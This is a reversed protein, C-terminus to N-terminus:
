RAGSVRVEGGATPVGREQDDAATQPYPMRGSNVIYVGLCVGAVGALQSAGMYEGLLLWGYLVAFVPSLFTLAAVRTASNRQILWAYAVFGFAASVIGLYLISVVARGSFVFVADAEWMWSSLGLLPWSMWSQWCILAVPHIRGAVRKTMVGSVATAVAGSLVIADGILTPTIGGGLKALFLVIVGGFALGLGSLKRLTLRDGPLFYPALLALFIPQAYFFVAARGSTTRSTGVYAAVNTYFFLVGLILLLMAETRGFRLPVRRYYAWGTLVLSTLLFRLAGAGLPPMDMTGVKIAVFAGGWIACLVITLSVALLDLPSDASVSIRTTQSRQPM